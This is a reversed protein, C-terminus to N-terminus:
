QLFFINSVAEQDKRQLRVCIYLLKSPHVNCMHMRINAVNNTGFLCYICEFIGIGHCRMHKAAAIRLIALDCFSCTFTDQHVATMSLHQTFLEMVYFKRDCVIIIYLFFFFRLNLLLCNYLKYKSDGCKLPRVNVDRCKWIHTLETQLLKPRGKCVFVNMCEKPHFQKLHMIVNHAACTRYFCYPCQFISNTHEDQIHKVLWTCSDAIEECYPCELWSSTDLVTNSQHEIQNEHNRLHHLMAEANGTSFNCEVAMCKYPSFLCIERLMLKCIDTSKLTPTKTTWPKLNHTKNDFQVADTMQKVNNSKKLLSLNPQMLMNAKNLSVVNSIMMGCSTPPIKDGSSTTNDIQINPPLISCGGTVNSIKLFGGESSKISPPALSNVSIIEFDRSEKPFMPQSNSEIQMIATQETVTSLKDGSLRRFKILPKKSHVTPEVDDQGANLHVDNMHKLELMLPLEEDFVQKDCMYCYGTWSIEHDEIHTLLNPLLVHEFGCGPILCCFGTVNNWISYGINDIRNITKTSPDDTENATHKSQGNSKQDSSQQYYNNTNNTTNGAATSSGNTMSSSPGNNKSSTDKIVDSDENGTAELVLEEYVLAMINRPKPIIAIPVESEIDPDNINDVAQESTVENTTEKPTSDSEQQLTSALPVPPETLITVPQQQQEVETQNTLIPEVIKEKETEKEKEKEGNPEEKVTVKQKKGSKDSAKSSTATKNSSSISKYLRSVTDYIRNNKKNVQRPIDTPM